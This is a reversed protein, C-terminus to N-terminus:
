NCFGMVLGGGVSIGSLLWVRLRDKWRLWFLHHTIRPSNGDSALLPVERSHPEFSLSTQKRATQGAYDSRRSRAQQSPKTRQRIGPRARGHNSSPNAPSAPSTPPSSPQSSPNSPAPFFAPTLSPPPPKIHSPGPPPPQLPFPPHITAIPNGSSSRPLPPPNSAQDSRRGPQGKKM